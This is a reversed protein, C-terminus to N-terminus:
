RVRRASRVAEECPAAVTSWQGTAHQCGISIRVDGDVLVVWLIERGPRVERYTVAPRDSRTDIPNFDVFIGDAEGDVARRLVTATSAMDADPARSQTLHLIPGGESTSMVQVRASGPGDTVRQVTWGVPVDLAVRGEVLASVPRASPGASHPAPWWMAGAAVAAAVAAGATLPGGRRRRGPSTVPPEVGTALTGAASFMQDQSVVEVRIRAATLMGVILSALVEAGPVPPPADVLVARRGGRDLVAAVVEGAVHEPASSRLGLSIPVGASVVLVAHAAIEVVTASSAVGRRSVLLEARSVMEVDRVLDAAADRVTDVRTVPWWSPHILLTRDADDLLPRLVARWAVPLPIPETGALVTRGDGGDLVAQEMPVDVSSAATCPLRHISAPGLACVATTM